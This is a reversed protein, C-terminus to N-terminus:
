AEKTTLDAGFPKSEAIAKSEASRAVTNAVLFATVIQGCQETSLKALVDNSLSPLAIAALRRLKDDYERAEDETPEELKELELVRRQVRRLEAGQRLGLGMAWILEHDQGDIHVFERPRERIRIIPIARKESM